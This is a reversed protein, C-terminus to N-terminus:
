TEILPFSPLSWVNRTMLTLGTRSDIARTLDNSSSILTHNKIAILSLNRQRLPPGASPPIVSHKMEAVAADVRYFITCDGFFVLNTASHRM